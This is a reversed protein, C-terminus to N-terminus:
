SGAEFSRGHRGGKLRVCISSAKGLGDAKIGTDINTRNPNAVQLPADDGQRIEKLPSAM